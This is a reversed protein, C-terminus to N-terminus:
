WSTGMPGRAAYRVLECGATGQFDGTQRCCVWFRQMNELTSCPRKGSARPAAVTTIGSLDFLRQTAFDANRQYQVGHPFNATDPFNHASFIGHFEHDIAQLDAYDGIYPDYVYTASDVSTNALIVCDRFSSEYQGQASGFLGRPRLRRPVDLRNGNGTPVWRSKCSEMSVTMKTAALTTVQSGLHSIPDPEGPHEVLVLFRQLGKQFGSLLFLVLRFLLRLLLALFLRLFLGLLFGLVLGLVFVLGLFLSWFVLEPSNLLPGTM